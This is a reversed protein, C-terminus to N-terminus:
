EGIRERLRKTFAVSAERTLHTANYWGGEPIEWCSADICEARSRFHQMMTDMLLLQEKPLQRRYAEMSPMAVIVFRINHVECLDAISDIYSRNRNINAQNRAVEIRDNRVLSSIDKNWIESAQAVALSDHGLRQGLSDCRTVDRSLAYKIIKKTMLEPNFVEFSNKNLPWRPYLHMYITYYTRRHSESQDAWTGHGVGLIVTQLSDMSHIYHSLLRYDDEPTQSSNALNFANPFVAPSIGDYAYSSGLILTQIHTAHQEMYDRKYTYSNPILEAICELLFASVVIPLAFQIIHRIFSRM